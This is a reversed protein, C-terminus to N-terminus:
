ASNEARLRSCRLLNRNAARCVAGARVGRRCARRVHHVARYFQRRPPRHFRNVVASGSSLSSARAIIGGRGGLRLRTRSGTFWAFLFAGLATRGAPAVAPSAVTVPAVLIAAIAGFSVAIALGPGHPPGPQFVCGWGSRCCGGIMAMGPFRRGVPPAAFTAVAPPLPPPWRLSWAWPRSTSCARSFVMLRLSATNSPSVGEEWHPPNGPPFGGTSHAMIRLSVATQRAM